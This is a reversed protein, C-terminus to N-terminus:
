LLKLSSWHLQHELETGRVTVSVSKGVPPDARLLAPRPSTKQESCPPIWAAAPSASGLASPWAAPAPPGPGSWVWTRWWQEPPWVGLPRPAAPPPSCTLACPPVLLTSGLSLMHRASLLHNQAVKNHLSRCALALFRRWFSFFSFSKVIWISSSLFCTCCYLSWTVCSWLIFSLKAWKCVTFLVTDAGQLHLLAVHPHLLQLMLQLFRLLLRLAHHCGAPLQLPLQFLRCLGVVGQVSLNSREPAFEPLSPRSCLSTRYIRWVWRLLVLVIHAFTVEAGRRSQLKFCSLHCNNGRTDATGCHAPM